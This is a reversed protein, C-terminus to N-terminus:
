QHKSVKIGFMRKIFIKIATADWGAFRGRQLVLKNDLGCNLYYHFVFGARPNQWGLMQGFRLDNFVLTDGQKTVTYYGQSFRLLKDLDHHDVVSGLLTDNRSFFQFDMDDGDDFVSRYAVYSGLSDTSVVYWLFNNFPTPTTFYHHAPINKKNFAAIVSREIISKNVVSYALFLVCFSVSLFSVWRRKADDSKIILLFIMSIGLPLSFLPDAVFLTNFSVRFHSIPEFWGTGYANFADLFIHILIQTGIVKLWFMFPFTKWRWWRQISWALMPTVLLLFLISHTVGRHALANSAPTMWFGFLFDIDPILQSVGGFIISKRGLEKGSVIEGVCGGLVFHTISDM